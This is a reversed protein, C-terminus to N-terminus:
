YEYGTISMGVTCTNAATFWTFTIQQGAAVELGDPIPIAAEHFAAAAITGTVELALNHAWIIPSSNAISSAAQRIRFKALNNVTSTAKVYIQIAQIRLRKGSTVTYNTAATLAAANLTGNTFNTLTSEAAATGTMEDWYLLVTQRGADKLDQTTVGNAGQTGKTIAAQTVAVTNNPSVAVVLATDTAVAATSAAKVTATNTGDSVKIPFATNDSAVTVRQSGTGTTGNGMLPTVANIQSVNVSQNAPLAVSDPTVLLKNTLAPQDTALVVRLTGASKNGSNTDPVTGAVTTLDHKLNQAATFQLTATQGTTLTTPTTTFVGGVPVPNATATVANAVNGGVAILGAVGGTVTNTGGIQSVNVSQNAPLAVSDPTVLLKNTLQPQDTALVVRLTGASKVGSNTDTTTGALQAVNTSANAPPSTTVTGSVPQTVASGDVKLATMSAVGQVTIVDASASGATGLAPQKASTSAGSPLPLSAASVPQTVGSGDIRLLGTTTLSLPSTQATTYSPAATTVAGQILPGTQGSTTSGQGRGITADLALGNTTGINSTVTGTVTFTGSGANATVTGSVPQTVGSGDVKLATMSTIGQVTIVDASATGATGLAPQKAATAAGSPLPLSSASIPQTAQWFTGTVAVSNNPSVVVVLAPDAAVAATSAAKVAVNTTGDTLKSRQTGGTLTSDLALGNTTGINATVTGSVPQTAQWFTGTVPLSTNTVAVHLAQTNTDVDVSTPNGAATTGKAATALNSGGGGSGAGLQSIVRVPIAVQGTDSGPASNLLTINLTGDTVRTKQTGGTLTADLALGNTTGVNATVTGSIPQTVGSGDVKLATMSTIGQVTIVDTSPTGATGLAPQKASTSAGTPLPLSTASVPQTAPFNSVAVTGSVPVNSNPSIAVVLAPDSALPATSAPKVTALDGSNGGKIVISM